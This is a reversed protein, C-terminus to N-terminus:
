TATRTPPRGMSSRWTSRSRTTSCGSRGRMTVVEVLDETTAANQKGGTQRPRRVHGAGIASSGGGPPSRAYSCRCDGQPFSYSEIANARRAGRAAARQQHQQRDFRRMLGPLGLRLLGPRRRRHRRGSRTLDRGATRPTSRRREDIFRQPLAHGAGLRRDRAHERRPGARGGRRRRDHDRYPGGANPNLTQGLYLSDRGLAPLDTM